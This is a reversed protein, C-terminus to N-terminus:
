WWGVWRKEAPDRWIRVTGDDGASFIGRGGTLFGVTSVAGGHTFVHRTGGLTGGYSRGFPVSLDWIALGGNRSGTALYRGDPSFGLADISSENEPGFVREGGGVGEYLVVSGSAFGVAVDGNKPSVDGAASRWGGLRITEGPAGDVRYWRLK